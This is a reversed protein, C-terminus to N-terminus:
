QTSNASTSTASTVKNRILDRAHTCGAPQYSFLLARRNQDSTNPASKHVLYAGFFVVSGAPVEVAVTEIGDAAAPDMELNGFADRDIRTPWRGRAHSGPIVELTGNALSADDLFLMATAVRAADDAFGDWYPHDQHFPNPGGHHPRKLNLKETFLVPEADGVFDVMPEVFRADVAWAALGPSLHALPELGHVVDSQGEWKITVEALLDPDFVYSGVEYRRSKRDRVLDEVLDECLATMAEVEDTRFVGTRVVFGDLKMARREADTLRHEGRQM